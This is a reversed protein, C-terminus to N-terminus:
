SLTQVGLKSSNVPELSGAILYRKIAIECEASWRRCVLVTVNINTNFFLRVGFNSICWTSEGWENWQNEPLDYVGIQLLILIKDDRVKGLKLM